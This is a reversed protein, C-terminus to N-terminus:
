QGIRQGAIIAPPKREDLAFRVKEAAEKLFQRRIVRVSITEQVIDAVAGILTWSFTL